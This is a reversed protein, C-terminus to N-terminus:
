EESNDPTVYRSLLDSARKSGVERTQDSADGSPEEGDTPAGEDSEATRQCTDFLADASAGGMEVTDAALPTAGRVAPWEGSAARARARAGFVASERVIPSGGPTESQDRLFDRLVETAHADDVETTAPSDLEASDDAGPATRHTPVPTVAADDSLDPRPVSVSTSLAASTTDPEDLQLAPSVERQYAPVAESQKASFESPEVPPRSAVPAPTPRAGPATDALDELGFTGPTGFMTSSGFAASMAPPLPTLDDNGVEGALSLARRSASDARSDTGYDMLAALGEPTMELSSSPAPDPSVVPEPSPPTSASRQSREPAYSPNWSIPDPKAEAAEFADALLDAELRIGIETRAVLESDLTPEPGPRPTEATGVSSSPAPETARRAAELISGPIDHIDLTHGHLLEHPDSQPEQMTSAVKRLKEAARVRRAEGGESVGSTREVVAGLKPKRRIAARKKPTRTPTPESLYAALLDDTNGVAAPKNESPRKPRSGARRKPRKPRAEAEAPQEPQAAPASLYGALLADLGTPSSEAVAPTSGSNPLVDDLAPLSGSDSRAVARSGSSEDPLLSDFEPTEVDHSLADPDANAPPQNPPTMPEATRPAGPRGLTAKATGEPFHDSLIDHASPVGDVLTDAKRREAILRSSSSSRPIDTQSMESRRPIDSEPFYNRLLNLAVPESLDGTADAMMPLPGTPAVRATGALGNEPLQHEAVLVGPQAGSEGSHQPPSGFYSELMSDLEEIADLEDGDEVAPLAGTTVAPSASPTLSRAQLSESQPEADTPTPTAVIGPAAAEAPAQAPPVPPPDGEPLSLAPAEDLVLPESTPPSLAPARSADPAAPAALEQAPTVAIKPGSESTSAPLQLAPASVPRPVAPPPPPPRMTVPEFDGTGLPVPSTSGSESVSLVDRERVKLPEELSVEVDDSLELREEGGFGEDVEVVIDDDLEFDDNENAVRRRISEPLARKRRSPKPKPREAPVDAPELQPLDSPATEDALLRQVGGYRLVDRTPNALDVLVGDVRKREGDAYVHIAPLGYLGPKDSNEVVVGVHGSALEVVSGRPVLGLAQFLLDACFRAQADASTRRMVRIASDPAMRSQTRVDFTIMENFRRVVQVLTSELRPSFEGKYLDGLVKQNALWQAEYGVVTRHLSEDHLRGVASLTIVTDRPLARRQDDNLRPIVAIQPGGRGMGAARPRGIDSMMASLAVRSLTKVDKTLERAALIVLIASNVARGAEDDQVNRMRTIGLFAKPDEDALLVLQQALRKLQRSVAYRGEKLGDYLFRMVVLTSAYTRGVRDRATMSGTQVDELLEPDILRLSAGDSFTPIRNSGEERVDARMRDSAFTVVETLQELTVATSVSMENVGARMLLAGLALAAEYVDRGAKLLTGNVFVTDNLFLISVEDLGDESLRHYAKVTREMSQIVAQNNMLHITGTKFMRYLQRVVAAFDNSNVRTGEM